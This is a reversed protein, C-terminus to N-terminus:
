ARIKKFRDSHLTNKSIIIKQPIKFEALKGDCFKWLRQRFAQSDEDVSLRVTAKVISGTIPNSEGQVVVEEIGPMSQIINEVEAPYVKEGGVNILESQRGLIRFYEGDVHVMDGTKFWGDATFPSPANLYGLMASKAKIELLGDVIRTEFDEGGIKVWLSDSSKSKSRLVGLESLGYTQQLVINPFLAHFSRLTLEPMPETGYTILELSSINHREYARGVLMLNVFTPSTPLVEVKYKEVAALVAEPSRNKLIVLCGANSLSFLLTNIGGFHDFLLFSVMRKAKRPVKYKQLLPVFDHVIGKSKGTSGSSFLILGPSKLEKLQILLPHSTKREITKFDVKDEDHEDIAIVAEVEAIDRFEPNKIVTSRLLPVVTCGRDILALIMAVSAPSFDAELSVITNPKLNKKDLFSRWRNFFTLLDGYSYIKDNWVIADKAENSKFSEIIFDAFM